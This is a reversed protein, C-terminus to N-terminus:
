GESRVIQIKVAGHQLGMKLKPFFDDFAMRSQGIFDTGKTKGLLICGETNAATNGPHIRIGDFMPVNLVHPMPRGFRTSNDIIVSYEGYPIATAKPIKVGEARTVDELTYCEFVDDIYLSGITSTASFIQRILKLQM